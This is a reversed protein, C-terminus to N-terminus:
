FSALPVFGLRDAIFGQGLPGGAILTVDSFGHSDEVAVFQTVGPTLPQPPLAQNNVIFQISTATGPDILLGFQAARTTLHVRGTRGFVDAPVGTASTLFNAVMVQKFVANRDVVLDLKPLLTEGTYSFFEDFALQMQGSALDGCRMNNDNLDVTTWCPLLGQPAIQNAIDQKFVTPNIGKKSLQQTDTYFFSYIKAGSKLAPVMHPEAQAALSAAACLPLLFHSLKRM